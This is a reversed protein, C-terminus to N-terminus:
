KSLALTSAVMYGFGVFLALDMILAGPLRAAPGGTSYSITFILRGTFIGVAIVLAPMPYSFSILVPALIAFTMHELFNIQCRQGNGMNFWDPYPLKKSYRGNGSDPYGFEPAKEAWSFAEHHIKDFQNMFRRRFTAIRIRM